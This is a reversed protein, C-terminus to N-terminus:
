ACGGERAISTEDRTKRIKQAVQTMADDWSHGGLPSGPARYRPTTVTEGSTHTAFM